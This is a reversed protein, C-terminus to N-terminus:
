RRRLHYLRRTGGHAFAIEEYYTERRTETQNRSNRFRAAAFQLGDSVRVVYQETLRARTGSAGEDGVGFEVNGAVNM